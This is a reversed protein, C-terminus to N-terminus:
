GTSCGTAAEVSVIELAAGAGEGVTGEDDAGLAPGFSSRRAARRFRRSAICCDDLGDCIGKGVALSPDSASSASGDSLAEKAEDILSFDLSNSSYGTSEYSYWCNTDM